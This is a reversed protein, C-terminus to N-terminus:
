ERSPPRGRMRGVSALVGVAALNMALSSGGASMFPLTLGTTPLLNLTVAMHLVATIVVATTLGAALFQGFPDPATKAIRYGIWGFLGFLVVVLVVGIFGWEEGISAFIFDSYAYPLHALKAKGEGLGQGLLGGSGIAIVSETIQRAGDETGGGLYTELRARRYGSLLIMQLGLVGAAMGLLLFHGIKAGATFLVTAGLVAVIAAMSLNPQRMILLDVLGIVLLFPVVGRKFGRIAEGKKAALAACWLVIVFKAIEGPQIDLVGLDIWRRAGNRSGAISGTLSEPLAPILLLGLTIVLAPWALPRLQRYDMRSLLLMAIGGALGIALQKVAIMFGADRISVANYLNVVGFVTLTFTVVVLLRVEWRFEGPHRVASASM